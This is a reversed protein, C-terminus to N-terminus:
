AVLVEVDYRAVARDRSVVIAGLRRAQAVLIRDFPDQHHPPLRAAEEADASTVAISSFGSAEVAAGLDPPIRIRGKERKIALQWVTAASVVIDNAPDAIAARAGDTLNAHDDILWWILVHADVLLIV